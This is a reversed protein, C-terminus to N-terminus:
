RPRRSVVLVPIDIGAPHSLYLGKVQDNPGLYLASALDLLHFPAPSLEPLPSSTRIQRSRMALSQGRELHFDFHDAHGDPRCILRLRAQDIQRLTAFFPHTLGAPPFSADAPRVTSQWTWLDFQSIPGGEVRIASSLQLVPSQRSYWVALGAIFLFAVGTFALVSWRSRWLLTAFSLICFLVAAFLVRRRFGEPWGGDWGFTPAYADPEVISRPGAPAYQLVWFGGRLKWPWRDDPPNDCRVAIITGGALLAARHAEDVRAASSASLVVADLCEWAEAPDLLPRSEDLQIPVIPNQRFLLTGADPHAGAFGVLRQDDALPHLALPHSQGGAAEWRAGTLIDSAILWPVILSTSDPRAIQSPVAGNALLTISDSSNAGEIRVPIYRGPRYYGETPLSVSIAGRTTPILISWILFLLLFLSPVPIDRRRIPLCSHSGWWQGLFREKRQELGAMM